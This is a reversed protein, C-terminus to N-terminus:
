NHELIVDAVVRDGGAPNWNVAYVAKDGPLGTRDAPENVTTFVVDRGVAGRLGAILEDNIRPAPLRQPLPKDEGAALAKILEDLEAVPQKSLVIFIHESGPPKEFTFYEGAGGPIEYRRGPLIDNSHQASKSNPFLPSWVGSSGRSVIYVYSKQNGMVALRILDGEHYKAGPASEVLEDGVQKLLSYRLGLPRETRAATQFYIETDKLAPRNAAPPAQPRPTEKKDAARPPPSKRRPLMDSASFFADRADMEAAPEAAPGASTLAPMLLCAILCNIRM